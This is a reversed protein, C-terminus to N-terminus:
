KDKRNKWFKFIIVMLYAILVGFINGILDRVEFFREPIILHLIELIISLFLLFIVVLIFKRDKLYSFLGIISVFFYVYFHNHSILFFDDTFQPQYKLDGYIVFGLISGPYLYFVILIFILFHFLARLYSITKDM